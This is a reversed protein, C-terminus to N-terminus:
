TREGGGKGMVNVRGGGQRDCGIRGGGQEDCGGEWDKAGMMGGMGKGLM